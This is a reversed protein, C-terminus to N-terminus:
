LLDPLYVARREKSKIVKVNGILNYTKLGTDSEIRDSRVLTDGKVLKVDGDGYANNKKNDLTFKDVELIEGKSSTVRVGSNFIAIEDKFNLDVSQSEIVIKQRDDEYFCCTVNYMTGQNSEKKYNFSDSFLKWRDGRDFDQEKIFEKNEKVKQSITPVPTPSSTSITSEPSHNYILAGTFTGLLLVFVCYVCLILIMNDKKKTFHKLLIEKLKITNM